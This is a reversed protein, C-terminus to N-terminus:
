ELTPSSEGVEATRNAGERACHWTQNDQESDLYDQQRGADGHRLTDPFAPPHQM